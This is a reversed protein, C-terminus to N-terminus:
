SDSTDSAPVVPDGVRVTGTRDHVLNMGFTIRNNVTHIAGLTKLPEGGGGREGTAPDVTTMICRTCLKPGRFTVEGIRVRSWGDEAFPAAGSVTINPRFRPMSVPASGGAVLAENLADLSAEGAVLFPFGDAFGVRDDPAAYDPDVPRIVGPPMHVLRCDVGLAETLWASGEPHVAADVTDNWVIVPARPGDHVRPIRLEAAGDTSLMYSDGAIATRILAMRPLRRQTRFRGKPDVVMWRRDDVFGREDIVAEDVAVGGLSKVPHLYLASVRM